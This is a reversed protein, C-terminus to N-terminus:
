LPLMNKETLWIEPISHSNYIQVAYQHGTFTIIIFKHQPIFTTGHTDYMTSTYRKSIVAKTYRTHRYQIQITRIKRNNLWVLVHLSNIVATVGTWTEAKKFMTKQIKKKKLKWSMDLVFLNAALNPTETFGTNFVHIHNNSVGYLYVISNSRFVNNYYIFVFSNKSRSM